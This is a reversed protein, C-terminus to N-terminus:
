KEISKYIIEMIQPRVDNVQRFKELNDEFSIEVEWNSDLREIFADLRKDREEKVIIHERTIIGQKVPLYLQSVHNDNAFWLWISPKFDIQAATQRTVNGPNVLRRGEYEVTFSTHNDGTVILDFQPYKRLLGEAMGEKAGPFPKTLYTMHHWVLINRGKYNFGMSDDPIQRWHCGDLVKIRNAKELTHIGTKHRLEFNHQPL